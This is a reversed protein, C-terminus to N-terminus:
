CFSETLVRNDSPLSELFDGVTGNTNIIQKPMEKVEEDTCTGNEYLYAELTSSTVLSVFPLILVIFWITLPFQM